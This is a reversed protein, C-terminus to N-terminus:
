LAELKLELGNVDAGRVSVKRLAMQMEGTPRAYIAALTYEGDAIGDLAFARGADNGNIFNFSEPTGSAAQLLAISIGNFNSGTEGMNGSVFGSVSHGREGRYRVDIGTLEEGARVTLEVATDRTASPYYTMADGEYASANGFFQTTSGGVALVYSGPELGYLRYVGRDDTMRPIDFRLANTTRDTPKRVRIASVRAATVPEGAGDLVTGTIVGGKVMTLNVSEGIHYYRREDGGGLAAADPVIVYGPANVQVNYAGPRLDRLQFKGDADTTDGAPRGGTGLGFAFITVNALPHGDDTLVRGTISGTRRAGETGGAIGSPQTQQASQETSKTAPPRAQPQSGSTQQASTMSSAAILLLLLSSLLSRRLGSTAPGIGARAHPSPLRAMM